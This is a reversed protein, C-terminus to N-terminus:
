STETAALRQAGASWAVALAGVSVVALVPLLVDVVPVLMAFSSPLTLFATRSIWWVVLGANSVFFFLSLASTVITGICGVRRQPNDGEIDMTLAAGAVAAIVAGM